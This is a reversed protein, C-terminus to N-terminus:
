IWVHSIISARSCSVQTSCISAILITGLDSLLLRQIMAQGATVCMVCSHRHIFASQSTCVKSGREEDGSEAEM